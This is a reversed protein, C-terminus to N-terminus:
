KKEKKQGDSKGAKKKGELAEVRAFLETLRETILANITVQLEMNKVKLTMAERLESVENEMKRMKESIAVRRLISESIDNIVTKRLEDFEKRKVM